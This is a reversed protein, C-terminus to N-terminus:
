QEIQELGHTNKAAWAEAKPDMILRIPQSSTLCM